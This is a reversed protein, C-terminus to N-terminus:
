PLSGALAPDRHLSTHTFDAEDVDRPREVDANARLRVGHAGQLVNTERDAVALDGDTIPKGDITAVVKDEAFAQMVPAGLLTIAFAVTFAIPAIRKM